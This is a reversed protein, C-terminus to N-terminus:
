CLDFKMSISELDSGESERGTFEEGAEQERSVVRKVVVSSSLFWWLWDSSLLVNFTLM